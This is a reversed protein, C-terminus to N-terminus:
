LRDAPCLRLRGHLPYGELPDRVDAADAVPPLDGAAVREALAPTEILPATQGGAAAPLALWLATFLGSLAARM